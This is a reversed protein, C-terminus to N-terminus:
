CGTVLRAAFSSMAECYVTVGLCRLWDRDWVISAFLARRVRYSYRDGGVTTRGVGSAVPRNGRGVLGPTAWGAPGIVGTGDGISLMGRM